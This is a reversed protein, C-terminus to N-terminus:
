LYYLQFMKKCDTMRKISSDVNQWADTVMVNNQNIYICRSFNEVLLMTFQRLYFDSREFGDDSFFRTPTSFIGDGPNLSKNFMEDLRVLSINICIESM